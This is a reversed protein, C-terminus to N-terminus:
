IHILSLKVVMFTLACAITVIINLILGKQQNLQTCRVAWAATLSSGLLVTTNLAGLNTDLYYHAWVYVETHQARYITYAVFLGAFFLVETVLFAWIGLKGADFQQEMTDFHHQLGPADAHGHGHGHGDSAHAHDEGNAPPPSSPKKEPRPVESTTQSM